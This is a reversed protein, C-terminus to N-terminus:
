DTGVVEVTAGSPNPLKLDTLIIHKGGVVGPPLRWEVRGDKPVRLKWKGVGPVLVAIERVGSNVQVELWGGEVVTDPAVLGPTPVPDQVLGVLAVACQLLSRRQM